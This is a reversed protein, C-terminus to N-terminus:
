GMRARFEEAAARLGIVPTLSRNLLPLNTNPSRDSSRLWNEIARREYTHGDSCMVPDTFLEFSIPCRLHSPVTVYAAAALAASPQAILRPESAAAAQLAARLADRAAEFAPRAAAAAFCSAMLARVDAPCPHALQPDEPLELRRNQMCVRVIVQGEMACDTWPAQGSFVEWVIVGFSFVDASNRFVNEEQMLVEPAAWAATGVASTAHTSHTDKFASLGFDAIKARGEADLLVNLSKLDRHVVGSNHLFVMGDCVDLLVRLKGRLSALPGGARGAEAQQQQRARRLADFLSGLQMHEFVLAMAGEAPPLDVCVALLCVIRPHRLESLVRVERDLAVRGREGLDPVLVKVAVDGGRWQGAYVSSFGGRGILAGLQVEARPVPVGAGRM